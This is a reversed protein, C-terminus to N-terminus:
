FVAEYKEEKNMELLIELSKIANDTLSNSNGCNVSNKNFLLVYNYNTNISFVKDFNFNLNYESENSKYIYIGYSESNDKSTYYEFNGILDEINLENFPLYYDRLVDNDKLTEIESENLILIDSESGFKEYYSSLSSNDASFLYFNMEYVMTEENCEEKLRTDFDNIYDSNKTDSAEIFLNIIEYNKYKYINRNILYFSAYFVVFAIIIFIFNYIFFNSIKRKM